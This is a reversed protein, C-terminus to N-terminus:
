EKWQSGQRNLHSTDESMIGTWKGGENGESVKFEDPVGFVNGPDEWRHQIDCNVYMGMALPSLQVKVLKDGGLDYRTPYEWTGLDRKCEEQGTVSQKASRLGM